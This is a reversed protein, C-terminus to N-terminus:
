GRLGIEGFLSSTPPTFILRRAPIAGITVLDDVAVPPRGSALDIQDNTAVTDDHEDLHLGSGVIGEAVRGQCHCPGLLQAKAPERGRPQRRSSGVAHVNSEVDDGDHPHPEPHDLARESGRRRAPTLRLVGV